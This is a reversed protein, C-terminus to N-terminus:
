KLAGFYSYNPADPTRTIDYKKIFKILNYPELKKKDQELVYYFDFINYPGSRDVFRIWYLNNKLIYFNIGPEFTWSIGIRITDPPLNYKKTEEVIMNLVEKTYADERYIFSYQLNASKIFHLMLVGTLLCMFATTAAAIYKHYHSLIYKWLMLLFLSFMPIYFIAYREIVYVSTNFVAVQLVIGFTCVFLMLLIWPFKNRILDAAKGRQIEWIIIFMGSLISVLILIKGFTMTDWYYKQGYLISNILSTVTDQWFGTRAAIDLSAQRFNILIPPKYYIAALLLMSSLIPLFTHLAAKKLLPKIYGCSQSDKLIKIIELLFLIIIATLYVYVFTLHSLVAGFMMLVSCATYYGKDQEFKDIKVFIYYLGITLFALGLAYGRAASLVELLFPNFIMLLMGILLQWKSLFLKLLKYAGILYIYTLAEDHFIDLSYARIGLYLMAGSIILFIFIDYVNYKKNM